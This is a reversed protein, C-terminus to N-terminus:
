TGLYPVSPITRADPQDRQPLPHVSNSNSIVRLEKEALEAIIESIEKSEKISKKELWNRTKESLVFIRCAKGENIKKSYMTKM